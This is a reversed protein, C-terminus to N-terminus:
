EDNGELAGRAIERVFSAPVCDDIKVLAARLRTNETMVREFTERNDCASNVAEDRETILERNEDRLRDIEARYEKNDDWRQCLRDSCLKTLEEARERLRQNEAQLETIVVLTQAAKHSEVGAWNSPRLWHLVDTLDSM